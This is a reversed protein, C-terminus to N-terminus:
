NMKSCSIDAGDCPTKKLALMLFANAHALIQVLIALWPYVEGLAIAAPAVDALLARASGSQAAANRSSVQHLSMGFEPDRRRPSDRM